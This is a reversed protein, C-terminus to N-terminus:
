LDTNGAELAEIWQALETELGPDLEIARRLHFLAKDPRNLFKAAIQGLGAHVIAQKEDLQLSKEFFEAAKEYSKENFAIVSLFNFVKSLPHIRTSLLSLNAAAEREGRDYLNMALLFYQDALLSQSSSPVERAGEELIAFALDALGLEVLSMGSAWHVLYRRRSPTGARYLEMAESDSRGMRRLTEAEVLHAVKSQPFRRKAESIAQLSANLDGVRLASAATELFPDTCYPGASLQEQLRAWGKQWNEENKRFVMVAPHDFGTFTPESGDDRFELGAISPYNKFRRILDFGLEGKVLAGYFAAGGPILEPVATFHQYRNVDTIALYDLNALQNRLWFLEGKCTAFGRVMFLLSTQFAGFKEPDIMSKMSFAGREVAIRSNAPIHDHIWRAAQIRSDERTYLSAFAVGYLASYLFM